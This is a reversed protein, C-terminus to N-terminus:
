RTKKRKKGFFCKTNEWLRLIGKREKRATCRDCEWVATNGWLNIKTKLKPRGCAYCRRDAPFGANSLLESAQAMVDCQRALNVQTDLYIEVIQGRLTTGAVWPLSEIERTTEELSVQLTEDMETRIYTRLSAGQATWLRDGAMGALIGGLRQWRTTPYPTHTL